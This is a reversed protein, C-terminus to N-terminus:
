ETNKLEALVIKVRDSVNPTAALNIIKYGLNAYIERRMRALTLAAQANEIRVNDKEFPLPQCFFIKKYVGKKCFKYYDKIDLGQCELYAVGDPIAGDFFVIKDKPAKKEADIQFELIEKQFEVTNQIEELKRGEKLKHEILTRAAEPFTVYGLKAMENVLTTKGSSPGGTVVYWNKIKTM